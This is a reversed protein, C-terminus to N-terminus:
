RDNNSTREEPSSLFMRGRSTIAIHGKSILFPEIEKTVTDRPIRTVNCILPLSARGSHRLFNLYLHDFRTYGGKELGLYTRIIPEAESVTTPMINNSKCYLTYRRLTNIVERPSLRTSSVLLELIEPPLRIGKRDLFDKAISKLDNQDYPDFTFSYCRNVLPELLDGFENTMLIFTWRRSDMLDYLCEPHELLHVEDIAQLDADLKMGWTNGYRYNSKVTRQWRFQLFQKICQYLYTKGYGSNARLLINAKDGAAVGDVIFGIEHRLNPQGRFFQEM